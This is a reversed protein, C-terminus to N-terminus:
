KEKKPKNKKPFLKALHQTFASESTDVPKKTKREGFPKPQPSEKKLSEKKVPKNSTLSSQNTALDISKPDAVDSPYTTSGVDSPQKSKKSPNPSIIAVDSPQKSPKLVTRPAPQKQGTFKGKLDRKRKASSLIKVKIKKHPIKILPEQMLTYITRYGSGEKRKVYAKKILGWEIMDKIAGQIVPICMRIERRIVALSPFAQGKRNKHSDLCIYVRLHSKEMFEIIGSTIIQIPFRIFQNM